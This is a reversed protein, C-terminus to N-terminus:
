MGSEPATNSSATLMQCDLDLEVVIMLVISSTLTHKNLLDPAMSQRRM